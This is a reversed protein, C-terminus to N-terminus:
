GAEREWGTLLRHLRFVLARFEVLHDNKRAADGLAECWQEGARVAEHLVDLFAEAAEDDPTDDIRGPGLQRLFWQVCGSLDDGEPARRAIM